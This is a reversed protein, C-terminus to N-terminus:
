RRTPTWTSTGTAASAQVDAASFKWNKEPEDIRELFRKKQEDRSVHLFFKRILSATARGPLARLRPHGPLARGLREQRRAAAAAEAGALFEPHVRVVLVEEYYTRNFIGIRGREPLNKVCRWM